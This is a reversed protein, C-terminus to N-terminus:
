LICLISKVMLFFIVAQVFSCWSFTLCCRPLTTKSFLVLFYSPTSFFGSWDIKSHSHNHSDHLSWLPLEITTRYATLFTLLNGIEIFCKFMNQNETRLLIKIIINEWKYRETKVIFYRGWFFKGILHNRAKLICVSKINLTYIKQMDGHPGEHFYLSLHFLWTLGGQYLWVYRFLTQKHM